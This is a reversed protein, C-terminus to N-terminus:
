DQFRGTRTSVFIKARDATVCLAAHPAVNEDADLRARIYSHSLLGLMNVRRVFVFVVLVYIWFRRGRGRRFPRVIVPVILRGRWRVVM